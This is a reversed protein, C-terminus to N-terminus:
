GAKAAAKIAVKAAVETAVEKAVEKAVQTAVAPAAKHALARRPGLDRGIVLRLDARAGQALAILRAAGIRQALREADARRAPVFEIRTYRVGYGKHNSLRVVRVEDQVMRGALARAAGRIGNGNSIELSAMGDAGIAIRSAQREGPQAYVAAPGTGRALGLVLVPAASQAPAARVRRLVFIGSETQELESHDWARGRNAGEMAGETAGAAAGAAAGAQGSAPWQLLLAADLTAVGAHAAVRYDAGIDHGRLAAGQRAMRAARAHQGLRALTAGLREWARADLPDLLCAQEQAALAAADDGQLFYAYGLNAYLYADAQTAAAGAGTLSRWLAIAAGYEGQEAHLAALGNRAEVHGPLAALASRYAAAAAGTRRALHASRGRAYAADASAQLGPPALAPPPPALPGRQLTGASSCALLMCASGILGLRRLLPPTTLTQM